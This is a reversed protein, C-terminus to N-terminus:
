TDLYSNRDEPKIWVKEAKEKELRIINQGFRGLVVRARVGIKVLLYTISM